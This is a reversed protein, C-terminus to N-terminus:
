LFIDFRSKQSKISRKQQLYTRFNYWVHCVDIGLIFVFWAWNPLSKNELDGTFAWVWVLWVPLFLFLLDTRKSFLWVNKNM